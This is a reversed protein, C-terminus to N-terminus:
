RDFAVGAEFLLLGVVLAVGDGLAPHTRLWGAAPVRAAVAMALLALGVLFAGGYWLVSLVLARLSITANGHGRWRAGRPSLFGDM